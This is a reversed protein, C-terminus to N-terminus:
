WAPASSSAWASPRLMPKLWYAILLNRWCSCVPLASLRVSLVLLFGAGVMLPFMSGARVGAVVEPDSFFLSCLVGAIGLSLIVIGRRLDRVSPNLAAGLKALLDPTLDSGTDMARQITNMVTNRNKHNFHFFGIGVFGSVIFLVIPVWLGEM